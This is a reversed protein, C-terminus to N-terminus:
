PYRYRFRVLEPSRALTAADGSFVFTVPDGPREPVRAPDPALSMPGGGELVLANAHPPIPRSAPGVSSARLVRGLARAGPALAAYAYRVVAPRKRGDYGHLFPEPFAGVAVPVRAQSRWSRFDFWVVDGDRLRYEAASRDAEFGNVFYFWDVGGSLSGEIGDVSQVYRGGYRTELKTKRDLAQMATQGAAVQATLVVRGGADRTVWLTATGEEGGGCGAVLAAAALLALTRRIM